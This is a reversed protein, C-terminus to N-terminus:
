YLNNYVMPSGNQYTHLVGIKTWGLDETYRSDNTAKNSPSMIIFKLQEFADEVNSIVNSINSNSTLSSSLEPTGYRGHYIVNDFFARMWHSSSIFKKGIISLLRLDHSSNKKLPTIHTRTDIYRPDLKYGYDEGCYPECEPLTCIKENIKQPHDTISSHSLGSADFFSKGYDIIKAVYESNFSVIEGSDMHYVCEIYENHGIVYLLVNDTHLDYHTFSNKLMTLPMYIQFLTYILDAIIFEPITTIANYLTIQTEISQILIGLHRSNTCSLKLNDIEANQSINTLKSINEVTPTKYTTKWHTNDNYKFLGYTEVFCSFKLAQENIFQGVLYEYYLNDSNTKTSSKLIANVTHGDRKYELSIVFGNVSKEGIKKSNALYKFGEFGDYHEKIKNSEVGFMLCEGSNFCIGNLFRARRKAPDVNKMFNSVKQGQSRRFLDNKKAEIEEETLVPVIDERGRILVDDGTLTHTETVPVLPNYGGKRKRKITKRSKKHLMKKATKRIKPHKTKRRTVKNRRRSKYKYRGM